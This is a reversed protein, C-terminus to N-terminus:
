RLSFLVRMQIGCPYPRVSEMPMSFSVKLGKVSSTDHYLCVDEYVYLCSRCVSDDLFEAFLFEHLGGMEDGAQVVNNRENLSLVQLIEGVVDGLAHVLDGTDGSRHGTNDNVPLLTAAQQVERIMVNCAILAM